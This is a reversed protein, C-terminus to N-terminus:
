TKKTNCLSCYEEVGFLGTYHAWQHNCYTTSAVANGFDIRIVHVTGDPRREFHPTIDPLLSGPSTDVFDKSTFLMYDMFYSAYADNGCGVFETDSPMYALLDILLSISIGGCQMM